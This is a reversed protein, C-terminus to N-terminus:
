NRQSESRNCTILMGSHSEYARARIQAFLICSFLFLITLLTQYCNNTHTHACMNRKGRKPEMSRARSVSVTRKFCVNGFSTRKWRTRKWQQRELIRVINANPCISSMECDESSEVYQQLQKM